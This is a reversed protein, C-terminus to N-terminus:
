REKEIAEEVQKLADKAPANEPDIELVAKLALRAQGWNRQLLFMKALNLNSLVDNPNIRVANYFHRGALDDKGLKLYILGLNNHARFNEPDLALVQEYEQMAETIKGAGILTTALIFHSKASKPDMELARRMEVIGEDVKGARALAAGLKAHWEANDPSYKLVGRCRAVGDPISYKVVYDNLLERLDAQNKPAVQIWLEAMEDTSNPGYRVIKPPHNPNHVNAESNDFVYRMSLTTGKPLKLPQKYQYDSQWNFDWNKILILPKITGDPLTASGALERGLYHAHPLLGTVDLEVPLTYSSEMVYNAEGAAIDIVPPRIVLLNTLQTPPRDSFYFGVSARVESPKGSPRMHMQLVMDTGKALRWAHEGSGPSPVRGPQWSVLHGEPMAVDEGADMGEYGPESDQADRRRATGSRDILVFAHHVATTGVRFEVARVWRQEMPELPVVFNRYVDKGDAALMYTGPMQAVLDPKGLQWGDVFEPPQAKAANGEVCGGKVWQAILEIEENSLRREDAFEGFGKEPLWPPMFRNATVKAMQSAHKRVQEYTILEFPGVEGKRHCTACNKWVIPAVHENFSVQKVSAKSNADGCGSMLACTLAAGAFFALIVEARGMEGGVLANDM